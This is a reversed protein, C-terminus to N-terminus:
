DPGVYREPSRRGRPAHSPAYEGHRLGSEPGYRTSFDATSTWQRASPPPIEQTHLSYHTPQTYTPASAPAATSSGSRPIKPRKPYNRTFASRNADLVPYMLPLYHAIEGADERTWRTWDPRYSKGNAARFTPAQFNGEKLVPKIDEWANGLINESEHPPPPPLKSMYRMTEERFTTGSEQPCLLMAEDDYWEDCHHPGARSAWDSTPQGTNKDLPLRSFMISLKALNRASAENQKMERLRVQEQAALKSYGCREYDDSIGASLIRKSVTAAAENGASEKIIQALEILHTRGIDAWSLSAPGPQRPASLIRRLPVPQTAEPKGESGEDSGADDGSGESSTESDGDSEEDVDGDTDNDGDSGEGDDEGEGGSEYAEAQIRKMGPIPRPEPSIATSVPDVTNRVTTKSGPHVKNYTLSEMPFDSEALSSVM